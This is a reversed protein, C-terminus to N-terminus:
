VFFLDRGKTSFPFPVALRNLLNAAPLSKLTILLRMVFWAQNSIVAHITRLLWSLLTVRSEKRKLWNFIM